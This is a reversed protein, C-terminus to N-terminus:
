VRLGTGTVVVRVVNASTTTVAMLVIMLNFRPLPAQGDLGPLRWKRLITLGLASIPLTKICSEGKMPSIILQTMGGGGISKNPPRMMVRAFVRAGRKSRSGPRHQLGMGRGPAIRSLLSPSLFDGALVVADPPPRLRRRLTALRAKRRDTSSLKDEASVAGGCAAFTVGGRRM